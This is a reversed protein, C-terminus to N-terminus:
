LSYKIDSRCREDLLILVSKFIFLHADPIGSLTNEIFSQRLPLCREVENQGASTLAVEIYRGDKKSTKRRVWGQKDLCQLLRSLSGPDIELIDVLQKQSCPQDMQYLQILIRWRPLCYGVESEFAALWSRYTQGLQQVLALREVELSM